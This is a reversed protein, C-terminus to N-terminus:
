IFWQQQLLLEGRQRELKKPYTIHMTHNGSDQHISRDNYYSARKPSRHLKANPIAVPKQVNTFHNQTMSIVASRRNRELGTVTKTTEARSSTTQIIWAPTTMMKTTVAAIQIAPQRAPLRWRVTVWHVVSKPIRGLGLVIKKITARTDFTQTMQANQPTTVTTVGM